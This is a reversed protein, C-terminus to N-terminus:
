NKGNSSTIGYMSISSAVAFIASAILLMWNSKLVSVILFAWAVGFWIM